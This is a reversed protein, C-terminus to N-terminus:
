RQEVPVAVPAHRRLSAMGLLISMTRQRAGSARHEEVIATVTRPDILDDVNEAGELLLSQAREDAFFRKYDFYGVTEQRRKQPLWYLPAHRAAMVPGVHEEPFNLLEPCLKAIAYRHWNNGLKWRRPLRDAAAVWEQSLFPMRCAACLNYLAIGNGIFNTVREQVYFHDLRRLSSGGPCMAALREVQPAKGQRLYAAVEPVVGALDAPKLTPKLKRKWFERLAVSSPVCNALLSLVGKDFYYTRVFEGNAGVFFRDDEALGAKLPYIYTHWHGAPKTGSTARSITAANQFYDEATPEISRVNLGFKRGIAEVVVRDTSNPYGQVVLDPKLGAALMTALLVRSDFGGSASLVVNGDACRAVEDCLLQVLRDPSGEADFRDHIEPWSARWIELKEGDWHLVSAAPTRFIEPHLTQNGTLHEIAMLDAVAEPNWRWGLGSGELVDSVTPGHSFKHGAASYFYPPLNYASTIVWEEDGRRISHVFNGGLQVIDRPRGSEILSIVKSPAAHCYGFTEVLIAQHPYDSM